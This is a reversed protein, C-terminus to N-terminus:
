FQISVGGTASWDSTLQVGNVYQYIPLQVYAYAHVTPTIAFSVGPAVTVFRGGSDEPEKEKGDDASAPRPTLLNLGAAAFGSAATAKLFRRRSGAHDQLLGADCLTCM